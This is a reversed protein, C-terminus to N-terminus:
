LAAPGRSRAPAGAVAPGPGGSVRAYVSKLVWMVAARRSLLDTWVAFDEGVKEDSYVGRARDQAPGDVLLQARLDAAVRGVHATLVRLLRARDTPQM